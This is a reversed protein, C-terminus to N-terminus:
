AGGESLFHISELYRINYMAALDDDKYCYIWVSEPTQVVYQMLDFQKGVEVPGYIEDGAPPICFAKIKRGYRAMMM